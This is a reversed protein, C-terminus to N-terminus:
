RGAEVLTEVVAVFDTASRVLGDAGAATVVRPIGAEVAARKSAGDVFFAVWDALEPAVMAVLTWVSRPPSRRVGPTSTARAALVAAAARLAALHATAYRMGDPRMTAAEELGHRAMALLDRPLRQPLAHAPVPLEVRDTATM